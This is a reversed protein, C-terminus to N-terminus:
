AAPEEQSAAEDAEMEEPSAPAIELGEPVLDFVGQRAADEDLTRRVEAMAHGLARSADMAAAELERQRRRAVDLEIVLADARGDEPEPAPPAVRGLVAELRELARDLRGAAQALPGDAPEAEGRMLPEGM